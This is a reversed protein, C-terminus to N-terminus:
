SANELWRLAELENPLVATSGPWDGNGPLQPDIVCVGWISALVHGRVDLTGPGIVKGGLKRRLEDCAKEYAARETSPNPSTM